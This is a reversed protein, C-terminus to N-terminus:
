EGCEAQDEVVGFVIGHVDIPSFIRSFVNEEFRRREESKKFM